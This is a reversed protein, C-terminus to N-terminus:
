EVEIAEMFFEEGAVIAVQYGECNPCQFDKGNPPFRQECDKCRLEAPIRKFQLQAGQAITEESIMDWYFQISEDVVSALQGITIHIALVKKAQASDAHKLAIDLINQAVPLEHM